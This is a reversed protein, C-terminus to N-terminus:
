GCGEIQPVPDAMMEQAHAQHASTLRLIAVGGFAMAVALAWQIVERRLSHENSM